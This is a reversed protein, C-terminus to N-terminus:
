VLVPKVVDFCVQLLLTPESRPHPRQVIAKIGCNNIASEMFLVDHM